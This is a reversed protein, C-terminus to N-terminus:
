LGFKAQFYAQVNVVGADGLSGKVAIVEAIEAAYQGSCLNVVGGTLAETNIGSTTSASGVHLDLADGRAIVVQFTSASGTTTASANGAQLTFAGSTAASLSVGNGSWFPVAGTTSAKVVMAVAFDGTGWDLTPADNVSISTASVPDEYATTPCQVGDFGNVGAPDLAFGLWPPDVGVDASTGNMTAENGNGSRDLWHLVDGTHAPDAILGYTDDFWLALGPLNAPTWAGGDGADLAAADPPGGDSVGGEPCDCPGYGSGDSLCVQSSACGGAGACSVSQGPVCGPTGGDLGCQCPGYANGSANCIQNSMCGGPGVCGISQGPVCEEPQGADSGAPLTADQGADSGGNTSPVGSSQGGCATAFVLASGVLRARM